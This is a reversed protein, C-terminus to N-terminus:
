LPNLPTYQTWTISTPSLVGGEMESLAASDQADAIIKPKDAAGDRAEKERLCQRLLSLTTAL